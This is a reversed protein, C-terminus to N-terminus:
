DEYKLHKYFVFYKEDFGYKKIRKAGRVDKISLKIAIKACNFYNALANVYEFSSAMYLYLNGRKIEKKDFLVIDKNKIYMIGLNTEDFMTLANAVEDNYGLNLLSSKVKEKEKLYLNFIPKGIPDLEIIWDREIVNESVVNKIFVSNLLTMGESQQVSLLRPVNNVAVSIRVAKCQYKKANELFYKWLIKQLGQRRHLKDVATLHTYILPFKPHNNFETNFCSVGVIENNLEVWLIECTEDKWFTCASTHGADVVEAMHKLFFSYAPSFALRSHNVVITNGLRDVEQGLKSIINM